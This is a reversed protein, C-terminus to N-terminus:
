VFVSSSVAVVSRLGAGSYRAPMRMRLLLLPERVVFPSGHVIAAAKLVAADYRSLPGM